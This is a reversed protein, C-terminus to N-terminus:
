SDSKEKDDLSLIARTVSESLNAINQNFVRRQKANDLRNESQVGNLKEEMAKEMEKMHTELRKMRVACNAMIASFAVVTVACAIMVGYVRLFELFGDM